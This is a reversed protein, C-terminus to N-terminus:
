TKRTWLSCWGEPSIQGDVMACTSSAGIFHQCDACKQEGKPQAQYQVSAQTAKASAPPAASGSGSPPSAAPATSTQSAEKSSDCGSLAIPVWLGCGVVLAGRLVARRSPVEEAVVPRSGHSVARTSDDESAVDTGVDRPVDALASWRANLAAKLQRWNGDSSKKDM